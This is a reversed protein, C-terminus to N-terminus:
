DLYVYQCYLIRTSAHELVGTPSSPPIGNAGSITLRRYDKDKQREKPRRSKRVTVNQKNGLSKRMSFDGKFQYPDRVSSLALGREGMGWFPNQLTSRLDTATANPLVALPGNRQFVRPDTANQSFGRRQTQFETDRQGPSRETETAAADHGIEDDSSYERLSELYHEQGEGDVELGLGDTSTSGRFADLVSRILTKSPKAASKM